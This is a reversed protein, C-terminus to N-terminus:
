TVAALYSLATLVTVSGGILAAQARRPQGKMLWFPLSLMLAVLFSSDSLVDRAVTWGRANATWAALMLLLSAGIMVAAGILSDRTTYRVQNRECIMLSKLMMPGGKAARARATTATFAATARRVDASLWADIAGCVIDILQQVQLREPGLMALFEEGYRERWARPYLRLLHERRM